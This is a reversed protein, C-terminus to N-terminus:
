RRYWWRVGSNMGCTAWADGQWYSIQGNNCIARAVQGPKIGSILYQQVGKHGDCMGTLSVDFTGDRCIATAQPPPVVPPANPTPVTGIPGTAQPAPRPTKIQTPAPTPPPSEIKASTEPAPTNRTVLPEIQSARQSVNAAVFWVAALALVALSAVAIVKTLRDLLDPQEKPVPRASSGVVFTAGTLTGCHYCAVAEDPLETSCKECYIM